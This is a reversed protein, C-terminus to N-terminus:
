HKNKSCLEDYKENIKYILSIICEYVRKAKSDDKACNIISINEFEDSNEYFMEYFKKIDFQLNSKKIEFIKKHKDYIVYAKQTNKFQYEKKM